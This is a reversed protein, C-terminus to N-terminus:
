NGYNEKNLEGSEIEWVEGCCQAIWGALYCLPEQNKTDAIIDCYDFINMAAHISEHTINKFNMQSLDAFRILFGGLNNEKDYASDVMANSNEDFEGVDLSPVSETGIAIWIKRPYIVPDFQHIRM